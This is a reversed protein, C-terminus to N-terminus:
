GFLSRVIRLIPLTLLVIIFGVIAFKVFALGRAQGVSNGSRGGLMVLIGGLIIMAIAIGGSFFQLWRIILKASSYLCLVDQEEKTTPGSKQILAIMESEDLDTRTTCWGQCPKNEIQTTGNSDSPCVPSVDRDVYTRCQPITKLVCERTRTISGCLTGDDNTHSWQGENWRWESCRELQSQTPLTREKRYSWYGGVEEGNSNRYIGRVRFDYLTDATLSDVTHSLRYPIEILHENECFSGTADEKFDIKYGILVFEDNGITISDGRLSNWAIRIQSDSKTINQSNLNLYKQVKDDPQLGPDCTATQANVGNGFGFVGAVVVAIVFFIGFTIKMGM